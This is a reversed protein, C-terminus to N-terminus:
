VQEWKNNKFVFNYITYSSRMNTNVQEVDKVNKGYNKLGTKRFILGNM